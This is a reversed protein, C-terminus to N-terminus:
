LLITWIPEWGLISHECSAINERNSAKRSMQSSMKYIIFTNPDIQVKRNDLKKRIGPKYERKMWLIHLLACYDSRWRHEYPSQLLMFYEHSRLGILDLSYFKQGKLNFRVKKGSILSIIVVMNSLMHIM